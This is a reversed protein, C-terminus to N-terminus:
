EGELVKLREIIDDVEKIKSVNTLAGILQSAVSSCCKGTLAAEAILEAKDTLTPANAADLNLKTAEPKVSPLSYKLVALAAQTDGGKSDDILQKLIDPTANRM